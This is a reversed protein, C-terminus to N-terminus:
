RQGSRRAREDRAPSRGRRQLGGPWRAIWIAVTEELALRDRVDGGFLGPMTDAEPKRTTKGGPATVSGVALGVGVIVVVPPTAPMM